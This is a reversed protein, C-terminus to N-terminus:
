RELIRFLYKKCDHLLKDRDLNNEKGHNNLRGICSKVEPEIFSYVEKINKSKWLPIHRAGARVPKWSEAESLSNDYLHERVMDGRELLEIHNMKKLNNLLLHLRCANLIEQILKRDIIRHSDKGYKEQIKTHIFTQVLGVRDYILDQSSTVHAVLHQLDNNNPYISLYKKLYGSIIIHLGNDEASINCLARRTPHKERFKKIVSHILEKHIEKIFIEIIKQSEKCNACKKLCRLLVIRKYHELYENKYDPKEKNLENDDEGNLQDDQKETGYVLAPVGARIEDETFAYLDSM